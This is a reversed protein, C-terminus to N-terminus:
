GRVPTRALLTLPDSLTMAGEAALAGPADGPM